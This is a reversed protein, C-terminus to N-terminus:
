PKEWVIEHLVGFCSTDDDKTASAFKNTIREREREVRLNAYMEMISITDYTDKYTNYLAIAEDRNDITKATTM